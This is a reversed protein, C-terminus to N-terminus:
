GEQNKGAARGQGDELRRILGKSELLQRIDPSLVGHEKVQKAQADWAMRWQARIVDPQESLCLERWTFRRVMDAVETPLAKMAEDQRYMGYKRVADVVHGWSTIADMQHPQMIKAAADRIDAITPPFVSRSIHIKVAAQGYEFPIDSLMNLWLAATDEEKGEEPWGRYNMSLLGILQIIEARNM